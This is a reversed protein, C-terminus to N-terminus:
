ARAAIDWCAATFTVEGESVFPDFAARAVEIVKARTDEDVDPLARGVPGLLTIFDM